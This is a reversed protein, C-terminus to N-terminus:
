SWPASFTRASAAFRPQVTTSMFRSQLTILGGSSAVRYLDVAERWGGTEDITMGVALLAALLRALTRDPFDPESVREHQRVTREGHVLRMEARRM